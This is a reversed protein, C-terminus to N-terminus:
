ASSGITIVSTGMTDTTSGVTIIHSVSTIKNTSDYIFMVDGIKLGLQGANTFYNSAEVTGASDSSQYHWTRGGLVTSEATLPGWSTLAPPNSTSYAM